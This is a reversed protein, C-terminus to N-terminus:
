AAKGGRAKEAVKPDAFWYVLGDRASLKSHVIHQKFAERYDKLDAVAVGALRAFDTNTEHEEPGVKLMAAFAAKIKNSILVEKVNSGRWDALTKPKHKTAMM